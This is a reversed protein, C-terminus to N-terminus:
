MMRLANKIFVESAEHFAGKRLENETCPWKEVQAWECPGNGKIIFYGSSIRKIIIEMNDEEYNAM